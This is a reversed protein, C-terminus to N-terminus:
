ARSVAALRALRRRPRFWERQLRRVSQNSRIQQLHSQISINGPARRASNAASLYNTARVCSSTIARRLAPADSWREGFSLRRESLPLAVRREGRAGDCEVGALKSRRLKGRPM